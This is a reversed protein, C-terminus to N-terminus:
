RMSRFYEWNQQSLGPQDDPESFDWREAANAGSTGAKNCSLDAHRRPIYDFSSYDPTSTFLDLPLPANAIVENRYPLGYIHALLKHVSAMDYHAKSVYKRKVWPSAFLAITRHQDVHDGGDQPDDEVVIVLSDQWFPSKSIGDIYMGTAEDNVAVMLAPNPKGAAYGFAHDNGLWSYTFRPPDCLVRARAAIYCAAHTDPIVSETTGGPWQLDRFGLGGILEGGNQVSIGANKLWTFVSGELPQTDEGIGPSFTVNFQGRGWINLWRREDYDTSRGFVTWYHGQISQEADEYFNDMHAFQRALARANPWIEDMKGPAMVLNPDGDVGPLDGFLADFTKNERVIFFVRSIKKSPGDSTKEPIPFDYAAGNCQVRPYGDISQVRTNAQHKATEAALGTADMFPVAQVSGIMTETSFGENLPKQKKDTGLGHGKGNTVFLTGDALDVSVSTPWWATKIMGAPTLVPDPAIAVDFVAVANASALTAYLRKRPEDYALWTPELGAGGLKVESVVRKSPRDIISLSDSLANAVVMYRADLFAMEEPTKGVVISSARGAAVDIQMVQMRTTDTPSVIGRWLSAYATNSDDPDFRVAFVDAAGADITKLVQGYTAAELSVVLIKADRAQGVLLTRGDPSVGIGQPFTQAPLSVTRQANESIKGTTLDFTYAYIKSDPIGSAVYLTETAPAFALGFNLSRPPPYSASSVVTMTTTDIVRVSNTVYGTDNAVLWRTGPIHTSSSPFGGPFDDLLLERGAPEVRRGDPLIVPTGRFATKALAGGTPETAVCAGPTSAPPKFDGCEAAHPIASWDALAPCKWPAASEGCDVGCSYVCSLDEKIQAMFDEPTPLPKPTEKPEDSGCAIVLLLLAAGRARKM